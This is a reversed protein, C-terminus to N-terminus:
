IDGGKELKSIKKDLRVVYLVFGILITIIIAVVVYIKGDSRMFDAKEDSAAVTSNQAILLHNLLLAFALLITRKCNAM